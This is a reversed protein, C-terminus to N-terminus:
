TEEKLGMRGDREALVLNPEILADPRPPMQRVCLVTYVYLVYMCYMCVYLVYMCYMCVTYVYLVYMCYICVTYLYLVYLGYMCVTYVYLVYM